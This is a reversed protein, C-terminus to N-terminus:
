STIAIIYSYCCLLSFCTFYRQREGQTNIVIYGSTQEILMFCYAAAAVYALAQEDPCEGQYNILKVTPDSVNVVLPVITNCFCTFPHLAYHHVIIKYFSKTCFVSHFNSILM